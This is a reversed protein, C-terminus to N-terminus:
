KKYPEYKSHNREMGEAFELAFFIGVDKIRFRSDDIYECIHTTQTGNKRTILIKAGDPIRFVEKNRSNVFRITKM